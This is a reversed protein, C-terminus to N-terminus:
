TSPKIKNLAFAAIARPSKKVPQEGAPPAELTQVTISLPFM